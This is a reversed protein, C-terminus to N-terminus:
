APGPSPSGQRARLERLCQVNLSLSFVVDLVLGDQKFAISQLEIPVRNKALLSSPSATDEIIEIEKFTLSAAKQTLTAVNELVSFSMKHSSNARNGHTVTLQISMGPLPLVNAGWPLVIGDPYPVEVIDDNKPDSLNLKLEECYLEVAEVFEDRITSATKGWAILEASDSPPSSRSM